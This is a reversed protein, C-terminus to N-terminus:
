KARGCHSLPLSQSTVSVCLDIAQMLKIKQLAQMTQTREVLAWQTPLVLECYTPLCLVSPLKSIMSMAHTLKWM